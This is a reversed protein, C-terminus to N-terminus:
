YPTEQNAEGQITEFPILKFPNSIAVPVETTDINCFGTKLRVLLTIPTSTGFISDRPFLLDSHVTDFPLFTEKEVQQTDNNLIELIYYSPPLHLKRNEWYIAVSDTWYFLSDGGFINKMIDKDCVISMIMSESLGSATLADSDYRARARVYSVKPTIEYIYQYITHSKRKIYDSGKIQYKRYDGFIGTVFIINDNKLKIRDKVSIRDGQKLYGGRFPVPTGIVPEVVLYMHSAVCIFGFISIILLLLLKRM